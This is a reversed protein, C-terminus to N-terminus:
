ECTAAWVTLYLATAFDNTLESGGGAIMKLDENREASVFGIVKAGLSHAFGVEYVTGADLGDLCALVVSCTKLGEIDPQYVDDANGRGVHHLPSFVPVGANDLALKFEEILWRQPLNFFPGALYVTKVKEKPLPLLPKFTSAELRPM